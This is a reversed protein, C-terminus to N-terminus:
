TVLRVTTNLANLHDQLSEHEPAGRVRLSQLSELAADEKFLAARESRVEAQLHV